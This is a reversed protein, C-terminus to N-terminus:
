LGRARWATQLAVTRSDTRGFRLRVDHHDIEHPFVVRRVGHKGLEGLGAHQEDGETRPPQPGDGVQVDAGGVHLPRGRDHAADETLARSPTPAYRTATPLGNGRAREM